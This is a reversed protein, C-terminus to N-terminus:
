ATHVTMARLMWAMKEHGEMVGTVFDQTGADGWEGFADIMPRIDRVLQEHDSLLLIEMRRDPDAAHAGTVEPIHSLEQFEKMSGAAHGGLSRIREAVSDMVEDLQEYQAEFLKHLLYFAPGEVNWHFNRTKLYLAIEGALLRQLAEIVRQRTTPSLGIEPEM